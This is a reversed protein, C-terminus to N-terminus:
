WNSCLFQAYKGNDLFCYTVVAKAQNIKKKQSLGKYENQSKVSPAISNSSRFKDSIINLIHTQRQSFYGWHSPTPPPPSVVEAINKAKKFSRQPLKPLTATNIKKKAELAFILRVRLKNKLAPPQRFSEKKKVLSNSKRNLKSLIKDEAVVNWQPQAFAMDPEEVLHSTSGPRSRRWPTLDFNYYDKSTHWPYSNLDADSFKLIWDGDLIGNKRPIIDLSKLPSGVFAASRRAANREEASLPNEVSIISEYITNNGLSKTTASQPPQSAAKAPSSNNNADEKRNQNSKKNSYSIKNSIFKLKNCKTLIVNGCCLGFCSNM